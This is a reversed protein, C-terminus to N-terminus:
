MKNLIPLINKVGPHLPKPWEGKEVWAYGQNEWDLEPEFEKSVIALFTHYEFGSSHKFVHIKKLRLPGNYKCEERIERVVGEKPTEDADCAGGWTGWTNPEQVYRSRHSFLFRKTNECYFICGAARRGWFGTEELAKEHQSDNAIITYLDSFYLKKM